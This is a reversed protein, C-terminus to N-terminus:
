VGKQKHNIYEDMSQNVIKLLSQLEQLQQPSLGDSLIREDEGVSEQLIEGVKRGKDTVEINKMRRDDADQWCRVFGDREMRSIVGVVTPHSVQLFTEVDKQTARGGYKNLCALVRSQTFTLGYQKLVNNGLMQVKDAIQKVLYGIHDEIDM